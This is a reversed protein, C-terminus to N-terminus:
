PHALHRLRDVPRSFHGLRPRGAVPTGEWIEHINESGDLFFLNTGYLTLPSGVAVCGGSSLVFTSGSGTQGNLTLEHIQQDTGIYLAEETYFNEM